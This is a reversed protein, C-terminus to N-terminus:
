TWKTNELYYFMCLNLCMDINQYGLGLLNIVFKAVYFNEKLKNEKPLISKAWEIIRDYGVESLGHDSKITFVHAVVSLKSHNICNDWLLKDSDKLLDFFWTADVNPEEDIIPYQDVHSQNMRM